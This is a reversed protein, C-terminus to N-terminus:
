MGKCHAQTWSEVCAAIEEISTYEEDPEQPDHGSMTPVVLHFGKSLAPIVLDFADPYIAMSHLIVITPNEKDGYEQFRM